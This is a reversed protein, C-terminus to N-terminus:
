VHRNAQEAAHESRVARQWGARQRGESLLCLRRRHRRPRCAGRERRTFAPPIEAGLSVGKAPRLPYPQHAPLRAPRDYRSYRRSQQPRVAAKCQRILPQCRPQGPDVRRVENKKIHIHITHLSYIGTPRIIKKPDKTKPLKKIIQSILSFNGLLSLQNLQSELRSFNPESMPNICGSYARSRTFLSLGEYGM